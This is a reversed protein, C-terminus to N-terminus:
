SQKNYRANHYLYTSNVVVSWGALSSAYMCSFMDFLAAHVIYDKQHHHECYTSSLFWQILVNIQFTLCLNTRFM